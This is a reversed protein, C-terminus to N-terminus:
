INRDVKHIGKHFILIMHINLSSNHISSVHVMELSYYKVPAQTELNVITASGDAQTGLNHHNYTRQEGSISM